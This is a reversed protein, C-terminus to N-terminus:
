QNTDLSQLFKYAYKSDFPKVEIEGYKFDGYKITDEDVFMKNTAESLVIIIKLKFTKANLKDILKKFENFQNAILEKCNHILIVIQQNQLMDLLDDIHTINLRFQQFIRNLFSQMNYLSEGNIEYSGDEIMNRDM